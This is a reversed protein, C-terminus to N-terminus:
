LEVIRFTEHCEMCEWWETYEGNFSENDKELKDHPCIKKVEM